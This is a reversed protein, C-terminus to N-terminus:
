RHSHQHLHIQAVDIPCFSKCNKEGALWNEFWDSNGLIIESIGSWEIDSDSSSTGQLSFCEKYLASDFLLTQYITHALLSPHNLLLPITKELKRSLLPFLLFTFERQYLLIHAKFTSLLFIIVWAVIHRYETQVLLRQM